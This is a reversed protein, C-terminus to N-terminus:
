DTGLRLDILIRETTGIPRVAVLVNLMGSDRAELPNTEESCEVSFEAQSRAGAILGAEWFQALRVRVDREIVKWLSSDNVEFVAWENDRRLQEGIMSVIRRSNIFLWARDTSMTRAGWIVVGRGPQVIIPNIGAESVLGVEAWDMEVETHTAGLVPTNAPPQALGFPRKELETRAFIGMLSGSPPDCADGRMIWPYYLAGYSRTEPHRARFGAFWRFLVDGHLGRPADLILFRNSMQRCHGLFVDYLAEADCRVSGNRLVECRMYAAAPVALIGIDDEARLRHFLPALVGEDASPAKLDEDGDICVGFLHLQDGGQEFFHRAARRSPKDFLERQPHEEFEMAARLVVEIFDGATADEPWRQRPIFGVIGGIDCRVMGRQRDALASHQISIGPRM